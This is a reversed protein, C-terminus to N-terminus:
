RRRRFRAALSPIVVAFVASATAAEPIPQPQFADKTLNVGGSLNLDHGIIAGAFLTAPDKYVIASTPGLITGLFVTSPDSINISSANPFNFLVQNPTIGNLVIQSGSWVFGDTVNFVFRDHANGTLTLVNSSYNVTDLSIVNTGSIGILSLDTSLTGPIVVTPPLGAAEMSANVADINAQNLLTDATGGVIIGGTPAYTAPTFAFVAGSSVYATGVFNAVNQNTGSFVGSSYGANGIILTAGDITVGGNALGLIGFQDAVGLSLPNSTAPGAMLLLLTLAVCAADRLRLERVSVIVTSVTM